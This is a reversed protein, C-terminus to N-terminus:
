KLVPVSLGELHLKRRFRWFRGECSKTFCFIASLAPNSGATGQPVCCKWHQVIPWETVEGIRFRVKNLHIQKPNEDVSLIEQKLM